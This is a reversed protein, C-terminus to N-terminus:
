TYQWAHLTPVATCPCRPTLVSFRYVLAIFKDFQTEGNDKCAKAIKPSRMYEYVAHPTHANEYLKRFEKAARDVIVRLKKKIAAETPESVAENSAEKIAM